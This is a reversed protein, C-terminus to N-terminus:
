FFRRIYNSNDTLTVYLHAEIQAGAFFQRNTSLKELSKAHDIHCNNSSPHRLGTSPSPTQDKVEREGGAREERRLHVKEELELRQKM